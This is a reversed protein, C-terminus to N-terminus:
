VFEQFIIEMGQILTVDELLVHILSIVIEELRELYVLTLADEMLQHLLVHFIVNLLRGGWLAKLVNIPMMGMLGHTNKDRELLIVTLVMQESNLAHRVGAQWYHDLANNPIRLIVNLHELRLKNVHAM